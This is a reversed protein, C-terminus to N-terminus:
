MRALKRAPRYKWIVRLAEFGDKMKIKKGEQSTRPNYKIPVELVSIGMGSLKATVEPEFGFRNQELPVSQIIPRKFMKYCTEMDTLKQGTTANSFWTLFRNAMYNRLYGKKEPRVLFRSGYVVEARGALLPVLLKPYDAPDYELDADQIVVFDGTAAAFGTRLAAGKGQNVPHFRVTADPRQQAFQRLQDTTGDKSCDDVLVLQRQVSGLDVAEVRRVLERWTNLENYVPIVISLTPM